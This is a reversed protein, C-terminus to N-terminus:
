PLEYRAARRKGVRKLSGQEVLEELDRLATNASAGTLDRYEQNSISGHERIYGLGSQLRRQRTFTEAGVGAVLQAPAEPAVMVEAELELPLTPTTVVPAIESTAARVAALEPPPPHSGGKQFTVIFEDLERFDPGDLGLNQMQALMFRIGTGLREMYGGPFDRLVSAIVPNRPRSRVRGASLDSLTIGPLLLGPSHIEIRNQYYFIRVAEGKLSYDRHVLANVVAERLAEIPYDPEDRRHFGEIWGAVPVFQRFFAEAQDVQQPITGHLVRREAFRRLGHEDPYLTCIAEAQILFNQPHKGFLLLGAATPCIVPQGKEDHIWAACELNVLLEEMKTRDSEEDSSGSVTVRQSRNTLFKEVARLDLDKLRARELPRTEWVLSGRRFLFAEIEDVSLPVSHTGRRMWSVGGAQYLSGANPPIQGVLLLKGELEILEPEAPQFQVTPQCHRAAQLMIDRARSIDKIGIIEWSKDQVGIIITGGTSSNAFACVREALEAYRPPAVKFEM